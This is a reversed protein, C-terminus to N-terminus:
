TCATPTYRLTKCGLPLANRQGPPPLETQIHCSRLRLVNDRNGDQTPVGRADTVKATGSFETPSTIEVIAQSIPDGSTADIVIGTVTVDNNTSTTQCGIYVSISLILLFFFQAARKM